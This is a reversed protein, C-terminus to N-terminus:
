SDIWQRFLEQFLNEEDMGNTQENSSTQDLPRSSKGERNDRENNHTRQGGDGSHLSAQTRHAPESPPVNTNENAKYGSRQRCANCGTCATLNSGRTVTTAM